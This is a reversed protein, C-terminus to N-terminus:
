KGGKLTDSTSGLTMWITWKSDQVERVKEAAAKDCEVTVTSYTAKSSSGKKTSVMDNNSLYSGLAAVSVNSALKVKVKGDVIGDAADDRDFASRKYGWKAATTKTNYPIFYYLDVKDGHHLLSQAFDSQQTVSITVATKGKSLKNALSSNNLNGTFTSHTLTDGAPVKVVATTGVLESAEDATMTDAPLYAAPVQKTTLMSSDVTTGAQIDTAAVAVTTMDKYADAVQANANSMAAGGAVLSGVAVFAAVGTLVSLKGVKERAADMPDSSPAAQAKDKKKGFGM